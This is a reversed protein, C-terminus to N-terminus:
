AERNEVGFLIAGLAMRKKTGVARSAGAFAYALFHPKSLRIHEVINSVLNEIEPVSLKEFQLDTVTPVVYTLAVKRDFKQGTPTSRAADDGAKKAVRDLRTMGTSKLAVRLFKAEVEHSKDDRWIRMDSRGEYTVDIETGDEDIVPEATPKLKTARCEELAVWGNAAAAAALLGVNTREKYAYVPHEGNTVRYSREALFVWQRLLEQWYGYRPTVAVGCYTSQHTHKM